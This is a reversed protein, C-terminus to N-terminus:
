SVPYRDPMKIGTGGQSFRLFVVLFGVRRNESRFIFHELVLARWGQTSDLHVGLQTLTMVEFFFVQPNAKALPPDHRQM